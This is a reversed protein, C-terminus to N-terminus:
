SPVESPRPQGAAARLAAVLQSRAPLPGIRGGPLEYARCVEPRHPVLPDPEALDEGDILYTPSGPFRLAEAQADSTVETPSVEIEVGALRAAEDLLARGEEHSPCERSFLFTM